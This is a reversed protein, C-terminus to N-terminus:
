GRASKRIQDRADATAAEDNRFFSVQENMVQAQHELTKATAANQEVLASNQQTMEDMQALAKSVHEIAVTQETSAAAIGSVVEAVDKISEVIETLAAGAQNVLGVGEHVQGNSAVILNKIDKAAQSARQSLSRVEAAVVAFGRGADGARAAEVAANLALLNTQRAIEDIVGIIDSIRGSSGEIQAMAEVAKAVVQGGRSAVERARGASADAQRANEANRRVTAAIEEMAASTEELSAAQEETRQSLDTTSASIEAAASSVDSVASVIAGITEQLQGSAANFDDQVKKFEAAFEETIRYSLDGHALSALGAGLRDVIHRVQGAAAVREAENCRREEETTRQQEAIAQRQAAAQVETGKLALANRKFVQVATAMTAVEEARCQDDIEVNLNGSSLEKMEDTLRLIPRVVQRILCIIGAGVLALLVAVLSTVWALAAHEQHTSEAEIANNVTDADAVIEDIVSRHAQYARTVDAYASNATAEDGRELAPLLGQEVASWFKMVPAHSTVTLKDRLARELDSDQWYQHREDYQKRLETLRAHSEAIPKARHLALTAELYAELVYEPPPLIDAVLDKSQVLRTYMPGGVQVRSVAVAGIIIAALIGVAIAAGFVYLAVAIRIKVVTTRFSTPLFRQRHNFPLDLSRKPENEDHKRQTGSKNGSREVRFTVRRGPSLACLTAFPNSGL